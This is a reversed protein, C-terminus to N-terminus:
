TGSLASLTAAYGLWSPVADGIWKTLARRTPAKGQLGFDYGDPFGQIRAAERATLTRRRSPHIFRGRGATMFGTTITQSPKEWSLRGYVSPYTHGDKHCDPREADPLDFLDNDFLYDIRARNVPTVSPEDDLFSEPARDELDGIIHRLTMPPQRLKAAVGGVDVHPSNVRTAITFHRRRSQAGGLDAANLVAASLVYGSSELIRHATQVVQSHDSTVDPVNEIVLARAQLAIAAAATTVYLINRPDARRSHNNLNSHGQCPPGALLLDVNGILDLFREDIVEPEYALEADVGRGYVHYDVLSGVNTAAALSPSFNQAYVTLAEADVDVAALAKHQLGAAQIASRAGV